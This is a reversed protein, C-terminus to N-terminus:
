VPYSFARRELGRAVLAKSFAPWNSTKDAAAKVRDQKSLGASALRPPVRLTVGVQAAAAALRKLALEPPLDIDTEYRLVPQPLFRRNLWNRWHDFWREQQDLWLVLDAVDLAVRIGSTDVGQWARHEIAKRWSVYADIQRRVVLILRVGPRSAIAEEIRRTPLMDSTLRLVLVRRGAAQTAALAAEFAAEPEIQEALTAFLDPFAQAEALNDCLRMLHGTGSRPSTVLCLTDLPM